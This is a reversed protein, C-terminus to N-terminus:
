PCDVVKGRFLHHGGGLEDLGALDVTEPHDSPRIRWGIRGPLVGHGDQLEVVAGACREADVAGGAVVVQHRQPHADAALKIAQSVHANVVNVVVAVPGLVEDHGGAQGLKADVLQRGDDAPAHQQVHGLQSALVGHGFAHGEIALFDHGGLRSLADLDFLAVHHQEVGAPQVDHVGVGFAEHTALRAEADIAGAVQRIQACDGHAGVSPSQFHQGGFIRFLGERHM